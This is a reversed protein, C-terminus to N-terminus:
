KEIIIWHVFILLQVTNCVDCSEDLVSLLFDSSDAKNKLQLELNGVIDKIRRTVTRRSPVLNEIAEKKESCILAAYVVLCESLSKM